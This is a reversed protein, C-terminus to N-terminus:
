GAVFYDLKDVGLNLVHTSAEEFPVFVYPSSGATKHERREGLIGDETDDVRLMPLSAGRERDWTVINEIDLRNFSGPTTGRLRLKQRVETGFSNQYRFATQVLGSSPLFRYRGVHQVDHGSKGTQYSDNLSKVVQKLPYASTRYVFKGGPLFRLYRFWVCIHIPKERRWESVGTRMYTNRSVFVGDLRIRPRKIFMDHWSGYVRSVYADALTEDPSLERFVEDTCVRRWLLYDEDRLARWARSVCLARGISQIPLRLLVEVKLENPLLADIDAEERTEPAQSSGSEAVIREEESIATTNHRMRSLPLAYTASQKQTRASRNPVGMIVCNIM